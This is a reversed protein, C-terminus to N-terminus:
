VGLRVVGAVVGLVVRWVSKQCWCHDLGFGTGVVVVAAFVALRGLYARICRGRVSDMCWSVDGSCGFIVLFRGGSCGFKEYDV